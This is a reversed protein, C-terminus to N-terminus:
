YLIRRALKQAIGSKRSSKINASVKMGPMLSVDELIKIQVKVVSKKIWIKEIQEEAKREVKVIQGRYIKLPYSEFRLSAGMGASIGDASKEPVSVEIVMINGAVKFLEEGEEVAKGLKERLGSILIGDAPSSVVKKMALKKLYDFRIQVGDKEKGLSQKSKKLLWLKSELDSKDSLSIVGVEYYVRGQKVKQEQAKIEEEVGQIKAELVEKDKGLNAIESVLRPSKLELLTTGKRVSEGELSRVAAVRGSFPAAVSYVALPIVEGEARAIIPMPYFLVGLIAIGFSTTLFWFKFGSMGNMKRETFLNPPVSPKGYHASNRDSPKQSHGINEM